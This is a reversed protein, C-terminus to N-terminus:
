HGLLYLMDKDDRRQQKTLESIKVTKTCVDLRVQLRQEIRRIDAEARAILHLVIGAELLQNRITQEAMGPLQKM